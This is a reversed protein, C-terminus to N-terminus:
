NYLFKLHEVQSYCPLYSYDLFVNNRIDDYEFGNRGKIKTRQKKNELSGLNFCPQMTYMDVGEEILEIWKRKKEVPIKESKVCKDLMIFTDRILYKPMPEFLQMQKTNNKQEKNIMLFMEKGKLLERNRLLVQGLQNIFHNYKLPRKLKFYVNTITTNERSIVGVLRVFLINKLYPQHITLTKVSKNNKIFSAISEFHVNNFLLCYLSMSEKDKYCDLVYDIRSKQKESTEKGIQM